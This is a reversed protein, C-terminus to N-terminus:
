GTVERLEIEFAQIPGEEIPSPESILLYDGDLTVDSENLSVFKSLLDLGRLEDPVLFTFNAGKFALQEVPPPVFPLPCVELDECNFSKIIEIMVKM